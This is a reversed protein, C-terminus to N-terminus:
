RITPPLHDTVRPIFENPVFEVLRVPTRELVKDRTFTRLLLDIRRLLVHECCEIERWWFIDAYDDDALIGIVTGPLCM